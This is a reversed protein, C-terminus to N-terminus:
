LRGGVSSARYDKLASQFVEVREDLWDSEARGEPKQHGGPMNIVRQPNTKIGYRKREVVAQCERQLTSVFMPQSTPRIGQRRCWEGYLDFLDQSLCPLLLKPANRAPFGDVDGSEFARMFRSSSELNLEILHAKADTMPPLTAAGFDGLDLHLLHHHLAEIGGNEIEARVAAYFDPSLKPPTWIVAHRRDDKELAAPKHENSLFVINVHNREEYAAMNKPNIRIWEGTIFAKLKNKIHFLESRAVVEDAILFLKRSAWDNFKDEIAAQDIVRGYRGYIAMYAEFFMNKGTGQPGHVVLTTKMKAGPHQIPYALWRITWTFLREPNSDGACMYRLM